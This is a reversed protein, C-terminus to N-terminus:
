KKTAKFDAVRERNEADMASFDEYTLDAQETAWKSLTDYFTDFGVQEEAEFESFSEEIDFSRVLKHDMMLLLDLAPLYEAINKKLFNTHYPQLTFHKYIRQRKLMFFRRIMEIKSFQEFMEAYALKVEAGKPPKNPNNRMLYEALFICPNFRGRV